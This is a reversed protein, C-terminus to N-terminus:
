RLVFGGWRVRNGCCSVCPGARWSPKQSVLSIGGSEGNEVVRATVFARGRGHIQQTKTKNNKQLSGPRKSYEHKRDHRTELSYYIGDCNDM